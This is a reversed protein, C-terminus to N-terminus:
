RNTRGDAICRCGARAYNGVSSAYTIQVAWYRECLATSNEFLGKFYKEWLAWNEGSVAMKPLKRVYDDDFTDILDLYLDAVTMVQAYNKEKSKIRTGDFFYPLLHPKEVLLKSIETQQQTIMQWVQAEFAEKQALLSANQVGISNTQAEISRSQTEIARTQDRNQVCTQLVGVCLVVVVGVMAIRLENRKQRQQEDKRLREQDIPTWILKTPARLSFRHKQEILLKRFPQASM